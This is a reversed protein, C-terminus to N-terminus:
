APKLNTREDERFKRLKEMIEPPNLKRAEEWLKKEEELYADMEKPHSRIFAVAGALTERSRIVPFEDLIGDVDAGRRIACVISALSVRVGALYYGGNRTELYKTPPLEVM